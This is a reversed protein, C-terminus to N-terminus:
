DRTKSSPEGGPNMMDNVIRDLISDISEGPAASRLAAPDFEDQFYRMRFLTTKEQQQLLAILTQAAARHAQTLRLIVDPKPPNEPDNIIELLRVAILKPLIAHIDRGDPFALNATHMCEVDLRIKRAYRYFASFSVNREALRFRRYVEKYSPPDRDAIARDLHRRQEPTLNKFISGHDSSDTTQRTPDSM